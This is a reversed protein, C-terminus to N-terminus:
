VIVLERERPAMPALDQTSTAADTRAVPEFRERAMDMSTGVAPLPAHMEWAAPSTQFLHNDREQESLPVIFHKYLKQREKHVGSFDKGHQAAHVPHQYDYAPVRNDEMNWSSLLFPGPQYGKTREEGEGPIAPPLPWGRARAITDVSPYHVVSLPPIDRTHCHQLVLKRPPDKLVNTLRDLQNSSYFGADTMETQPLLRHFHQSTDTVVVRSQWDELAKQKAALKEAEKKVGPLHISYPENQFIGPPRRYLELDERRYDWPFRDRDLPPQLVNVHLLNERWKEQLEDIRAVDPKKPHVNSQMTSPVGPFVWGKENCWLVRSRKQEDKALAEVNVPVITSSHLFEQCRTYRTDPDKEQLIDRLAQNALETSNLTQTSYNHAGAVANTVSPVKTKERVIQNVESQGRVTDKNQAIFDQTSGKEKRQAMHDVFTQNFNDIPTWIRSTQMSVGPVEARPMVPSPPKKEWEPRLEEFDEVTFPVGFEKSMSVVMEATPFIDNKVIDKMLHMRSMEELRVLAQFCPRPVMDRVYLLSQQVVMNLPEHLKVRCLDVDLPSYLRQSFSFDSNYMVRVDSNEPRPLEEWLRRVAEDRLGELVFIHKEGDLVHFGTVIDLTGSLQQEISLKYTSLAAEIVHQPMDDLDLARANIATVLQQLQYLMTTNKYAFIFIIRSFPCQKTTELESKAALEEVTILPQALEVQLKLHAGSHLYCGAAFPRDVPGDVAGAVGVLRSDGVNTGLIDPQLCNCIPVKFELFRHGLLLESLDIHGVGYPDWPKNRGHFANHLTRRSAVTGVNSIKEDELDDGFLTPKLKVDDPKRDRDHIEVAMHPGTLYERLESPEQTGLLIVSKDDWYINRAHEKAETIHEPQKFFKYKVYVPQCKTRLEEFSMPTDPMDTVSKVTIIMPNLASKLEDSLLPQDLAVTIFMDEVGSVASQLRSTVSTTGSFLLSMKFPVMCIGYKKAQEAAAAAVAEAKKMRRKFTASDEPGTNEKSLSAGESEGSRLNSRSQLPSPSHLSKGSTPSSRPPPPKPTALTQRPESSSGSAKSTKSEKGGPSQVPREAGALRGLRSFTRANDGAKNPVAVLNKGKALAQDPNPSKGDASAGTPSKKRSTDTKPFVCRNPLPRAVNSKPAQMNNFGSLQKLVMVKVGGVDEVSEGPKPQPLRFAKPRDFRARTSCKDKVDWVRLELTHDYLNLLMDKNVTMTHSHAWAIWTIEGDQWTKIVRADHREMYLKAAMGYTVVDTKMLEDDDPYLYYEVHYYSQPRPAEFVRKKKKLMAKLDPQDEDEVTPVAMAISVTFTVTHTGTPETAGRKKKKKAEFVIDGSASSKARASASSHPRSGGSVESAKRATSEGDEVRPTGESDTGQKHSSSKESSAEDIKIKQEGDSDTVPQTEMKVEDTPPSGQPETKEAEEASEM